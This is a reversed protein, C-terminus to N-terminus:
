DKQQEAYRGKLFEYLCEGRCFLYSKSDLITTWGRIARAKQCSSCLEQLPEAGYGDLRQFRPSRKPSTM